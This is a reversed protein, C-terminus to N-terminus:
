GEGTGNGVKRIEAVNKATPNQGLLRKLEEEAEEASLAKKGRKAKSKEAYRSSTKEPSSGGHLAQKPAQTHHVCHPPTPTLTQLETSHM